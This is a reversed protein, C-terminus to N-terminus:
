DITTNNVHTVSATMEKTMEAREKQEIRDAKTWELIRAKHEDTEKKEKLFKEREEKVKQM